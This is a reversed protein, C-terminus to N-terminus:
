AMPSIFNVSRVLHRSALPKLHISANQLTNTTGETPLPPACNATAIPQQLLRHSDYRLPALLQIAEDFPVFHTDEYGTVRTKASDCPHHLFDSKV